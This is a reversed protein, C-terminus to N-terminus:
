RNAESRARLEREKARLEPTFGDGLEETEFIPRIDLDFESNDPNPCRKAWEIAEDISDVNWLWFGAILEKAEAFPGDIIRTGSGEFHVRKGRSSPQLGEGGTMIGANILAENYAMMQRALEETPPVGAETEADARIAVMVRM